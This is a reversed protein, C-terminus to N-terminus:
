VRQSVSAARMGNQGALICFSCRSCYATAVRKESGACCCRGSAAATRRSRRDWPLGGQTRKTFIVVQVACLFYKCSLICIRPAPVCPLTSGTYKCTRPAPPHPCLLLPPCFFLIPQFFLTPFLIGNTAAYESFYRFLQRHSAVARRYSPQCVLQAHNRVDPPHPPQLM